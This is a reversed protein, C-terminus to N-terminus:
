RGIYEDSTNTQQKTRVAMDNSICSPCPSIDTLLSLSMSSTTGSNSALEVSISSSMKRSKYCADAMLGKTVPVTIENLLLDDVHHSRGGHDM